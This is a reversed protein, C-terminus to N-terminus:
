RSRNKLDKIAPNGSSTGRPYRVAAPGDHLFGTTLMRRAEATDSPAMIVMNPICRLFSIITPAPIPRAM